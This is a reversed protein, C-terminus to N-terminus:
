LADIKYTKITNFYSYNKITNPFKCSLDEMIQNLQHVNKLVFGFELDVYGVSKIYYKLNPNKILYNIIQNKMNYQKLEIDLKYYYYGLKPWNISTRFGLIIGLEKLKKLRNAITVVPSNLKKAIDLTQIRSNESIIKCIQYDLDDTEVIKQDDYWQHLFKRNTKNYEEEELLFLYDYYSEQYYASFVKKSFYDGYKELTKDWFLYVEPLTKAYIFFILDYNGIITHVTNTCKAEVFYDIIEKKIEPSVNQFSFYCRFSFIGLLKSTDIFTYFNNIIGNEQLKKVRISVSDKNLGVKRGISRFSQRSDLDLYYLIKRDKLDIKEM